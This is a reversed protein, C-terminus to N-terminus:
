LLRQNRGGATYKIFADAPAYLAISSLPYLCALLKKLKINIKKLRTGLVIM